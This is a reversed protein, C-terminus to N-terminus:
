RKFMSRYHLGGELFVQGGGLFSEDAAMVGIGDLEARSWENEDSEKVADDTRVDIRSLVILESDRTRFQQATLRITLEILVKGRPNSLVRKNTLLGVDRLYGNSAPYSVCHRSLADVPLQPTSSVDM